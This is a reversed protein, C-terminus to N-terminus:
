KKTRLMNKRLAFILGLIIFLIFIFVEFFLFCSLRNYALAFPFLLICEFVLISFVCAQVFFSKFIPFESKKIVLNDNQSQINKNKFYDVTYLIGALITSLVIFFVIILISYM